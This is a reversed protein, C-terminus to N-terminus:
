ILYLAVNPTDLSSRMFFPISENRYEINVFAPNLTFLANAGMAAPKNIYLFENGYIEQWIKTQMLFEKQSQFYNPQMLLRVLPDRSTAADGTVDSIVKLEMSSWARAKWTVVANVEPVELFDTLFNDNAWNVSSALGLPYFFPDGYSAPLQVGNTKINFLNNIWSM